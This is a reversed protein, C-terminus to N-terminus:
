LFFIARTANLQFDAVAIRIVKDVYVLLAISNRFINLM